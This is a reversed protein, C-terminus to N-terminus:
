DDKGVIKEAIEGMIRDDKKAMTEPPNTALEVIIDALECQAAPHLFTEPHIWVIPVDKEMLKLTMDILGACHKIGSGAQRCWDPTIEEIENKKFVQAIMRPTHEHFVKVREIHYIVAESDLEVRGPYSLRKHFDAAKYIMTIPKVEIELKETGGAIITETIKTDNM